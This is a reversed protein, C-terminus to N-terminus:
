QRFPDVNNSPAIKVTQSPNIADKNFYKSNPSSFDPSIKDIKEVTQTKTSPGAFLFNSAVLGVIAAFIAVAVIVLLDKQKM